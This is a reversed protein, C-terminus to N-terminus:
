KNFIFDISLGKNSKVNIKKEKIGFGEHWAKIIYDGQPVGKIEFEGLENTIAAYPHDFIFIWGNISSHTNSTIKINGTDKQYRHFMRIPRKVEMGKKPMAFNYITSGENLPRKSVKKHYELGLKLQVTHLIADENRIQYSGGVFGVNVRPLVQCNKISLKVPIKNNAKKTKIGEVWVVVNKIRSNSISYKNEKYEKGCINTNKNIAIVKNDPLRGDFKVIGMVGTQNLETHEKLKDPKECSYVMVISLSFLIYFSLSKVHIM